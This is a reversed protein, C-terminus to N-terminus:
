AGCTVILEPSRVEKMYEIFDRVSEVSDPLMIGSRGIDGAMHVDGGALVMVDHAFAFKLARDNRSINRPQANVIEIGDFNAPDDPSFGFRYPHAQFVLFGHAHM